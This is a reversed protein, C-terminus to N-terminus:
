RIRFQERFRDRVPLPAPEPQRIRELLEEPL